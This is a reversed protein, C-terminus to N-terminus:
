ALDGLLDKAWDGSCDVPKELCEPQKSVNTLIGVLYNAPKLTGRWKQVADAMMKVTLTKRKAIDDIVTTHTLRVGLQSALVVIESATLVHDHDDIDVDICQAKEVQKAIPEDYPLDEDSEWADPVSVPNQGFGNFCDAVNPASSSVEYNTLEQNNTIPKHNNTVKANAKSKTKESFCNTEKQNENPKEKKPRGGKKGNERLTEVRNQYEALWKQAPEFVWGEDTETFLGELIVMLKKKTEQPFALYLWQNKIPKETSVYRDVLRVFIGVQELDMGVTQASFEGINHTYYHM